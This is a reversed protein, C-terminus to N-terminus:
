FIFEGQRGSLKNFSVSIINSGKFSYVCEVMVM